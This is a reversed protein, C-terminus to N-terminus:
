SRRKQFATTTSRLMVWTSSVVVFFVISAYVIIPLFFSGILEAYGYVPHPAYPLTRDTIVGSTFAWGISGHAWEHIKILIAAAIGVLSGLLLLSRPRWGRGACSAFLLAASGLIPAIVAWAAYRFPSIGVDRGVALWDASTGLGEPPQLLTVTGYDFIPPDGGDLLTKEWPSYRYIGTLGASVLQSYLVFLGAYFLLRRINKSLLHRRDPAIM